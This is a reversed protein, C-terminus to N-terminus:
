SVQLDREGTIEHIKLEIETVTDQLKAVFQKTAPLALHAQLAEQDRWKEIIVFRASSPDDLAIAYLMCGDESRTDRELNPIYTLIEDLSTSRVQFHGAIILM